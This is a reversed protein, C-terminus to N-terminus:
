ATVKNSKQFFAECQAYAEVTFKYENLNDNEVLEKLEVASLISSVSSDVDSTCTYLEDDLTDIIYTMKEEKRMSVKKSVMNEGSFVTKLKKM